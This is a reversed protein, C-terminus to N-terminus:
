RSPLLCVCVTHVCFAPHAAKDGESVPSVAVAQAHTIHSGTRTKKGYDVGIHLKIEGLNVMTPVSFLSLICPDFVHMFCAVLRCLFTYIYKIHTYSCPECTLYTHGIWLPCCAELELFATSCLLLVRCCSRGSFCVM